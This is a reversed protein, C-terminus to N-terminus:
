SVKRNKFIFYIELSALISILTRFINVIIIIAKELEDQALNTSISWPYAADWLVNLINVGWNSASGITFETQYQTNKQSAYLSNQDEMNILQQNTYNMNINSPNYNELQMQGFVIGILMSMITFTIILKQSNIM